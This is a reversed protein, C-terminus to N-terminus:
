YDDTHFARIHREHDLAHIYMCSIRGTRRLASRSDFTTPCKMHGVSNGTTIGNGGRVYEAPCEGAWVIGGGKKRPTPCEGRGDGGHALRYLVIQRLQFSTSVRMGSGLRGM